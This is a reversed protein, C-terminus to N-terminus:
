FSLQLKIGVGHRYTPSLSWQVGEGRPKSLFSNGMIYRLASGAVIDRLQQRRAAVWSRQMADPRPDSFPSGFQAPASFIRPNPAALEQAHLASQFRNEVRVSLVPSPMAGVDLARRHEQGAVVGGLCSLAWFLMKLRGRM